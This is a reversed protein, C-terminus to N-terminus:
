GLRKKCRGYRPRVLIRIKKKVHGVPFLSRARHDEVTDSRQTLLIHWDNNYEFMPIMVAARRFQDLQDRTYVSRHRLAVDAQYSQIAHQIGSQTLHLMGGM